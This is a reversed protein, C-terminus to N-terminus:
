QPEVKTKNPPEKLQPTKKKINLKPKNKEMDKQLVDMEGASTEESVVTLFFFLFPIPFRYRLMM